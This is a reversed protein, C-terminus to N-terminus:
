KFSGIERSVFGSTANTGAEGAVQGGIVISAIKSITGGPIIADNSDGFVGNTSTVGSALVSDIWDGKVSVKGIQGSGNLATLSSSVGGLVWAHDVRGGVTLSKIAIDRTATPSLEGRAALGAVHGANGVLSGKIVIDGLGNYAYVFGSGEL